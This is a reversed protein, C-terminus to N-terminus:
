RVQHGRGRLGAPRPDLRQQVGDVVLGVGVRDVGLEVTDDVGQVLLEGGDGLVEFVVAGVDERRSIRRRVSTTPIKGSRALMM